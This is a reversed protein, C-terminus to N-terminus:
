GPTEDDSEPKPEAPKAHRAPASKGGSRAPSEEARLAKVWDIHEDSAAPAARDAAETRRRGFRPLRRTKAPAPEEKPPAASAPPPAPTEERAPRKTQSPKALPPPAPEARDPAPEARGPAPEPTSPQAAAKPPKSKAAKAAPPPKAAATSKATAPTQPAAATSTATAPPKAAATSTATAPTQPAAATSTATTAPDAREPATTATEPTEPESAKSTAPEPEPEATPREETTPEATTEDSPGAATTEDTPGAPAAAPAPRAPRRRAMAVAASVVVGAAIALLATRYATGDSGGGPGAILYALGVVAPGAVGSAGVARADSGGFRAIAAVGLAILVAPVLLTVPVWVGEAPLLGLRASAWSAGGGLTSAASILAIIWLWLVTAVISGSVAPVSLAAFAAVVGVLLGAVVTLTAAIRPDGGEPPHSAAAPRVVLPLVVLAGVAATLAVAVRLGITAAQRARRAQWAGAYGGAVVAVIAFFAVWTLQAHWPGRTPFDRDWRVVGLGYGIGLQGAGALLGTGVTVGLTNAWTRVAM